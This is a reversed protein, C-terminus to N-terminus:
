LHHYKNCITEKYDNINIINNNIGANEREICAQCEKCPIYYEDQMQPEYCTWTLEYPINKEIMYKVIDAKTNEVFPTEVKVKIADNLKLVNQVADAFNKTIDWYPKYTTHKHIGICISTEELGEFYALTESFVAAISAFLMNRNPFYHNLNAEDLEKNKFGNKRFNDIMKQIPNVIPTLDLKLTDLVKKDGYRERFYNVVNNQAKMEVINQQGYNFNIPLVTYGNELMYGMLTTSDLGGSHSVVALKM